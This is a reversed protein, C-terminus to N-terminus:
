VTGLERVRLQVEVLVLIPEDDQVLNMTNRFKEVREPANDILSPATAVAAPAKDPPAAPLAADKAPATVVMLSYQEGKTWAKISMSRTWTPRVIQITMEMVSSVGRINNEARVVIEKAKNDDNKLALSVMATALISIFLLKKM